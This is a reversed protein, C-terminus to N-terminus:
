TIYCARYAKTPEIAAM